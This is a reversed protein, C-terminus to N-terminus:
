GFSARYYAALLGLPVGLALSLSAAGFGIALSYPAGTLVRSLIDRGFEDTGLWHEPGPPQLRARVEFADFPYPAIWPGLLALAVFGGVVVGGFVLAPPLGRLRPAALAIMGGGARLPHAPQGLRLAPRRRPQGARLGDDGRDHRGPAAAPRSA